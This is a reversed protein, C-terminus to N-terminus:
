AAASSKRDAGTWGSSLSSSTAPTAILSMTNPASMASIGIATPM